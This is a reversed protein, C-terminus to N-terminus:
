IFLGKLFIPVNNVEFYFTRGKELAKRDILNQVLRITKFGIKKKHFNKFNELFLRLLIILIERFFCNDSAMM